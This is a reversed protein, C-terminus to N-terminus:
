IVVVAGVLSSTVSFIPGIQSTDAAPPFIAGSLSAM